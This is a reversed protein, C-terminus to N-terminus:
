SGPPAAAHMRRQLDPDTAVQKLWADIQWVVTDICDSLETDFLAGEDALWRGLPAQQSHASFDGRIDVGDQGRIRVQTRALLRLSLEDGSHQELEVRQIEVELLLAANGADAQRDETVARRLAEALERPFNRREDLAALVATVREADDGELGTLGHFSGLAGGALAGGGAFAPVCMPAFPGCLLGVLAGIGAGGAGGSMAGRATREGITDAELASHEDGRETIAVTLPIVDSTTPASGCAAVVLAFVCALLLKM